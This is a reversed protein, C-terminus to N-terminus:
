KMLKKQTEKQAEYAPNLKLMAKKNKLPNSKPGKPHQSSPNIMKPRIVSQIADSNIVKQLSESTMVSRPLKYTPKMPAVGEKNGYFEALQKFASETYIILRGPRQGPALLRTRPHYVKMTDVGNLMRAAKYLDSDTSQVILPGKAMKYKRNRAKGRGARIKKSDDCRALEDGLGLGILFAKLDRTKSIKEVEDSVVLPLEPIGEIRHGKSAVLGTVGSASLAFAQAHRRTTKTTKRAYRRWTMKPAFMGGGRCFNAFAAQGSRHSGGGPVRPVRAVARGTGWSQAATQYGADYKVGHATRTSLQLRDVVTKVIDPRVRVSFVSPIEVSGCAAAKGNQVNYVQAIPRVSM